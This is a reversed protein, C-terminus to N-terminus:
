CFGNENDGVSEDWRKKMETLQRNKEKEFFKRDLSVTICVDCMGLSDIGPSDAICNFNRNYICFEYECKM